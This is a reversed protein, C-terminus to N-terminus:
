EDIGLVKDISIPGPGVFMLALAGFFLVWDIEGAWVQGEPTLFAFGKVTLLAVLLVIAVATASIRTLLGLVILAGGVLEVLLVIWALWPAGPLAIGFLDLNGLMGGSLWGESGAQYKTWGHLAMVVGVGIRLALLGLPELPQLFPLGLTRM